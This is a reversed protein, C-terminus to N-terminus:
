PQKRGSRVPNALPVDVALREPVVIDSTRLGSALSWFAWGRLVAVIRLAKRKVTAM